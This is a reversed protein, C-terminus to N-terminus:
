IQLLMNSELTHDDAPKWCLIQVTLHGCVALCICQRELQRLNPQCIGKSGGRPITPCLQARTASWCYMNEIDAPFMILQERFKILVCWWVTWCTQDKCCKMTRRGAKTGHSACDKLVIWVKDSKYKLSISHHRLYWVCQGKDSEATVTIKKDYGKALLYNM